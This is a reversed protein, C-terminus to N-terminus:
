RQHARRYFRDCGGLVADSFLSEKLFAAEAGRREAGNLAGLLKPDGHRLKAGRSQELGTAKAVVPLPLRRYMSQVVCKLRKFAEASSGAHQLLSDVQLAFQRDDSGPARVALDGRERHPLVTMAITDEFGRHHGGTDGVLCGTLGSGDRDTDSLREFVNTDEAHLQEHGTSAPQQDIFHRWPGVVAAVVGQVCARGVLELLLDSCQTAQRQALGPQERWDGHDVEQAIEPGPSLGAPRLRQPSGTDPQVEVALRFGARAPLHSVQVAERIIGIAGKSKRELRSVREAGVRSLLVEMM